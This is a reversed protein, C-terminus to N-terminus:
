FNGKPPLAKLGYNSRLSPIMETWDLHNARLSLLM